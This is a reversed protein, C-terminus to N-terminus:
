LLDLDKYVISIGFWAHETSLDDDLRNEESVSPCVGSIGNDFSSSFYFSSLLKLDRSESARFGECCRAVYSRLALWSSMSAHSSALPGTLCFKGSSIGQQKESVQELSTEDV